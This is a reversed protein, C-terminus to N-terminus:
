MRTPLDASGIQPTPRNIVSDLDHTATPILVDSENMTDPLKKEAYLKTPAPNSDDDPISQLVETEFSAPVNRKVKRKRCPLCKVTSKKSVIMEKYVKSVMKRINSEYSIKVEAGLLDSMWRRNFNFDPEAEVVILSRQKNKSKNHTSVIYSLEQFKDTNEAYATSVLIIIVIASNIIASSHEWMDDHLEVNEYDIWVPISTKERLEKVFEKCFEEDAWDYSVYIDSSTSKKPKNPSVIQQINCWIRKADDQKSRKALYEIIICFENNEVLEKMYDPYSSIQLLVKLSYEAVRKELEDPESDLLTGYFSLFLNAFYQIPPPDEDTKNDLIHKIIYTNSFARHLLELAESLHLGNYRLAFCLEAKKCGDYLAAGTDFFINKNEESQEDNTALAILTMGFIEILEKSNKDFVLQKCEILKDFTKQMLLKKLGKRNRSLNHIISFVGLGLQEIHSLFVDTHIWQLAKEVFGLDIFMPILAIKDTLDWLLSLINVVVELQIVAVYNDINTIYNTIFTQVSIMLSSYNSRFEDASSFFVKSPLVASYSAYIIFIQNFNIRDDVASKQSITSTQDNVSDDRTTDQLLDLTYHRIFFDRNVRYLRGM